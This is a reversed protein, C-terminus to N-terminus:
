GGGGSNQQQVPRWPGYVSAVNAAYMQIDSWIRPDIPGPRSAPLGGLRLVHHMLLLPDEEQVLMRFAGDGFRRDVAQAMGAYDGSSFARLMVDEGIANALLSLTSVLLPYILRHNGGAAHYSAFDSLGEELWSAFLPKSTGDPASLTTHSMAGHRASYSLYHALEHRMTSEFRPPEGALSARVFVVNSGRQYFGMASADGGLAGAMQDFVADPVAVAMPPSRALIDGAAPGLLTSFEATHRSIDLVRLAGPDAVGFKSTIYSRVQEPTTMYSQLFSPPMFPSGLRRAASREDRVAEAM